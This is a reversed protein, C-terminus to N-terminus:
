HSSLHIPYITTVTGVGRTRGERFFISMGRIVMEPHSTFKCIVTAHDGDRLRRITGDSNPPVTFKASQTITGCHIVPTYNSGISTHHHIIEIDAQFMLCTNACLEIKNIAVMGKKIMRRKLDFDNDMNRIAICGGRGSELTHILERSDNHISRVFVKIYKNNFPGMFLIDRKTISHGILTGSIVLGIGTVDFVGNIYFISGNKINPVIERPRPVLCNFMHKSETIYYGTTNSISIVPVWTASKSLLVSIKDIKKRSIELLAPLTVDDAYLEKENNIFVAKHNVLTKKLIHKISSLTHLYKLRPVIDVKTVLIIFPIRRFALIGIHEITMNIVGKSASVM